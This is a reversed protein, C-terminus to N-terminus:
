IIYWASSSAILTISEYIRNITATLGGDITESGNADITLSPNGAIKKITITM